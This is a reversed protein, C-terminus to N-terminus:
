ACFLHLHEHDFHTEWAGTKWCKWGGYMPGEPGKKTKYDFNYGEHKAHCVPCMGYKGFHFSQWMGTPSKFTDHGWIVYPGSCGRRVLLSKFLPDAEKGLKPPMSVRFDISVVGKPLYWNEKSSDKALEAMTYQTGGSPPEIPTESINPNTVAPYETSGYPITADPDEMTADTATGGPYNEFREM